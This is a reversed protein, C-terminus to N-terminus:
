FIRRRRLAVLGVVGAAFLALTDPEPVQTPCSGQSIAFNGIGWEWPEVIIKSITGCSDSSAFGFGPTNTPSVTFAQYAPSGSSGYGEVWGIGNGSAGVSFSFARTNAPLILEVWEESTKYVDGLVAPFWAANKDLTLWLPSEQNMSWFEVKGGLPSDVYKVLSDDDRLDSPFDTMTFSALLDDPTTVIIAAMSPAALVACLATMALSSLVKRQYM